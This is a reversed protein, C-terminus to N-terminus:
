PIFIPLLAAKNESKNQAISAGYRTKLRNQAGQM